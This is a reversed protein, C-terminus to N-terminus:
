LFSNGEIRGTLTAAQVYERDCYAAIYIETFYIVLFLLVSGRDVVQEVVM